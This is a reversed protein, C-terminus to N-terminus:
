RYLVFTSSIKDNMGLSSLTGSNNIPPWYYKIGRYHSHEYGVFQLKSGVRVSSVRDNWWDGHLNGIYTSSKVDLCAVAGGFHSHEYLRVVYNLSESLNTSLNFTAWPADHDSIAPATNYSGSSIKSVDTSVVYDVWNYAYNLGSGLINQTSSYGLNFDGVLFTNKASSLAGVKSEVWNKFSQLGSKEYQSANNGFNYTNHYGFLDIRTSDDVKIRTYVAHRRWEDVAPDTQIHKSDIQVIPLKSLIVVYNEKRYRVPLPPTMMTGPIMKWLLKTYNRVEAYYPFGGGSENYVKFVDKVDQPNAVEQLCIVQVDSSLYNDRFSELHSKDEGHTNFSVIKLDQAVSSKKPLYIEANLDDEIETPNPQRLIDDDKSCSSLLLMLLSATLSMVKKM